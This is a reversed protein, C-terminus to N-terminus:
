TKKVEFPNSISTGANNSALCQYTGYDSNRMKNFSLTGTSNNVSVFESSQVTINDKRWEYQIQGHRAKCTIKTDALVTSVPLHYENKFISTIKPPIADDQCIVKGVSPFLLFFILTWEM